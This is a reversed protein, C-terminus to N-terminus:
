GLAGGLVYRPLSRRTCTVPGTAEASFRKVTPGGDDGTGGTALEVVFGVIFIM